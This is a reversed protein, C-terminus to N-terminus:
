SNVDYKNVDTRCTQLNLNKNKNKASCKEIQIIYLHTNKGSVNKINFKKLTLIYCIGSTRCFEINKKM